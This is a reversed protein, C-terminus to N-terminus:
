TVRVVYYRERFEHPLGNLSGIISRRWVCPGPAATIGTEEWLEREAAQEYTEGQQVGGGPTIWFAEGIAAVGEARFLLLRGIEDLLLVRATPRLIPESSM